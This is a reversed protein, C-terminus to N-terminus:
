VKEFAVEMRYVCDAHEEIRYIVLKNKTLRKISWTSTLTENQEGDVLVLLKGKDKIKFMGSMEMGDWIFTNNLLSLTSEFEYSYAKKEHEGICYENVVTSTWMGKVTKKNSELGFTKLSLNLGLVM